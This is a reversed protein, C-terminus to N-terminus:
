ATPYIKTKPTSRAANSGNQLTRGPLGTLQKTWNALVRAVVWLTGAYSVPVSSLAASDPLIYNAIDKKQKINNMRQISLSHLAQM